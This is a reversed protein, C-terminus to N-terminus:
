GAPQMAYRIGLHQFRDMIVHATEENTFAGSGGLSIVWYGVDNRFIALDPLPHGLRAESFAGPMLDRLIARVATQKEDDNLTQAM